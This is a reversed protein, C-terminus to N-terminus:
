IANPLASSPRRSALKGVRPSQPCPARHCSGASARTTSPEPKRALDVVPAILDGVGESALDAADHVVGGAAVEQQGVRAAVPAEQALPARDVLAEADRGLDPERWATTSDPSLPFTFDSALAM